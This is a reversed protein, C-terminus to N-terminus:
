KTENENDKEEQTDDEKKNNNMVKTASFLDKIVDILMLYVNNKVFWMTIQHSSASSLFVFLLFLKLPMFKLLYDELLFSIVAVVFSSGIIELKNLSLNKKFLVTLTNGIIVVIYLFIFTIILSKLEVDLVLLKQM